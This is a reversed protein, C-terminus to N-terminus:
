GSQGLAQAEQVCSARAASLSHRDQVLARVRLCMSVQTSCRAPIVVVRVRVAKGFLRLAEPRRKMVDPRLRGDYREIV